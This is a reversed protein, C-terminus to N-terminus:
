NKLYWNNIALWFISLLVAISLTLGSYTILLGFVPLIAGMITCVIVAISPLSKKELGKVLVLLFISIGLWAIQPEILKSFYTLAFISAFFIASIIVLNKISLSPLSLYLLLLWWLLLIPSLLLLRPLIGTGTIKETATFIGFPNSVSVNEQFIWTFTKEKGEQKTETPIIGSAFDADPFTTKAILSFNSIIQSGANYVWRPNGQAQYTITFKNIEGQTLNLPFNYEGQNKPEIKNGDQEVLFNQLLSYNYPPYIELSFETNNELTNKVQYEGKFDILYQNRNDQPSTVQDITVTINSSSLPLYRDEKSIDEVKVFKGDIYQNYTIPKEVLYRVTPAVQELREGTVSDAIKAIKQQEWNHYRNALTSSIFFGNVMIILILISHHWIKLLKNYESVSKNMLSWSAFQNSKQSLNILALGIGLGILILTLILSYSIIEKGLNILEQPHTLDPLNPIGQFNDEM